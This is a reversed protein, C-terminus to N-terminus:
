RVPRSFDAAPGHLASPVDVDNIGDPAIWKAGVAIVLMVALIIVSAVTVPNGLLRLSGVRGTETEDITPDTMVAPDESRRVAYLMDVVLNIVLFLVAILLVAGQIVPYDRAAVSNFVLRGLGPWVFVVEIVIVGGLITALGNGAHRLQRLEARGAMVNSNM